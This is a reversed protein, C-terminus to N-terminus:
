GQSIHGFDNNGFIIGSLHAGGYLFLFLPIWKPSPFDPHISQLRVFAESPAHTQTWFPVGVLFLGGWEACLFHLMLAMIVTYKAGRSGRSLEKYAV